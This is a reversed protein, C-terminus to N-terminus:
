AHRRGHLRGSHGDRERQAGARRVAGRRLLRQGGTPTTPGAATLTLTSTASSAGPNVAAPDFSCAAGAPLDACSLTVDRDFTGGDASVTVTYQATHGQITSVDGPDIAVDFTVTAICESFESTNNAPGSPDCARNAFFELRFTADPTSSLTGEIVTSGVFAGTLVPSSQDNNGGGALDIGLGSNDFIANGLIANGTM